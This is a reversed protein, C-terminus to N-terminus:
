RQLHQGAAPDLRRQRDLWRPAPELELTLAVEADIEIRAVSSRHEAPADRELVGPPLDLLGLPLLRSRAIAAERYLVIWLLCPPLRPRWRRFRPSVDESSTM